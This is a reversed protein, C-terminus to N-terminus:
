ACSCIKSVACPIFDGQWLCVEISCYKSHPIRQSHTRFICKRVGCLCTLAAFGMLWPDEWPLWARKRPTGRTRIAPTSCKSM